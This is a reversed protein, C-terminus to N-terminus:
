ITSPIFGQRLSRTHQSRQGVSQVFVPSGPTKRLKQIQRRDILIAIGGMGESIREIERLVGFAPVVLPVPKGFM